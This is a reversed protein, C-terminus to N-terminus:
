AIGIRDLNRSRRGHTPGELLNEVVRIFKRVPELREVRRLCVLDRDGFVQQM